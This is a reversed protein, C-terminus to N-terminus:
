KKIKNSRLEYLRPHILQPDANTLFLDVLKRIEETVKPSRWRKQEPAVDLRKYSLHVVWQNRKKDFDKFHKEYPPLLAKWARPQAMYHEAKADDDKAQPKYFFGLINSAHIVFSELLANYLCVDQPGKTLQEVVGYLMCIEYYLHEKSFAILKDKPIASLIEL